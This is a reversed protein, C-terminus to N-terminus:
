YDGTPEGTTNAWAKDDYFDDHIDDPVDTSYEPINPCVSPYHGTTGCIKCHYKPCHSMFHGMEQCKFCRAHAMYDPYKRKSPVTLAPEPSLSTLDIITPAPTHPLHCQGTPVTRSSRPLHHQSMPGMTPKDESTSFTQVKPKTTLTPPTSYVPAPSVSQNIVEYFPTAIGKDILSQVLRTRVDHLRAIQLENIFFLDM